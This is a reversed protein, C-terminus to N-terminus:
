SILGRQSQSIPVSQIGIVDGIGCALREEIANWCDWGYTSENEIYKLPHIVYLYHRM